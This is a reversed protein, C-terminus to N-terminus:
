HERHSKRRFPCVTSSLFCPQSSTLGPDEAVDESDRQIGISCLFSVSCFSIPFPQLCRARGVKDIESKGKKFLDTAKGIAAEKAAEVKENTVPEM